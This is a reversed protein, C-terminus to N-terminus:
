DTRRRRSGSALKSAIRPVAVEPPSADKYFAIVRPRSLLHRQSASFCWGPVSAAIPSEFQAM